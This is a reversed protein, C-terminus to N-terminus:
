SHSEIGSTRAQFFETFLTHESRPRWAPDDPAALCPHTPLNSYRPTGTCGHGGGEKRKWTPGGSVPGPCDFCRGGSHWTQLEVPPMCVSAEPQWLAPTPRPPPRTRSCQGKRDQNRNSERPLWPSEPVGRSQTNELGLPCISTFMLFKASWIHLM